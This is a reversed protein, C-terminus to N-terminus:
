SGVNNYDMYEATPPIWLPLNLSVHLSKAVQADNFTNPAM